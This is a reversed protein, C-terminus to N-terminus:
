KSIVVKAEVRWELDRFRLDSIELKELIKENLPHEAQVFEWLIKYDPLYIKSIAKAFDEETIDRKVNDILLCVLSEIAREIIEPETKLKDISSICNNM